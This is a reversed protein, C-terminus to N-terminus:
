KYRCYAVSTVTDETPIAHITIRSRLDNKDFFYDLLYLNDNLKHFHSPYGLKTIVESLSSSGTFGNIYFNPYIKGADSLNIFNGYKVLICDKVEKSKASDNYFECTLINEKPGKFTVFCKDGAYIVSDSKYESNEDLVFGSELLDDYKSPATLETGDFEASVNYDNGLYIEAYNEVNYYTIDLFATMVRDDSSIEPPVIDKYKYQVSEETKKKTVPKTAKEPTTCSTLFAIGLSLLAIVLTRLVKKM